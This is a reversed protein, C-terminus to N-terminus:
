HITRHAQKRITQSRRLMSRGQSELTNAIHNIQETTCHSIHQYGPSGPGSIILGGSHEAIQRIKRDTHGLAVALKKLPTSGLTKECSNSSATSKM